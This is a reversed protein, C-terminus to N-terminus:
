QSIQIGSDDHIIWADFGMKQIADKVKEPNEPTYAFMCGGGGSGNLKGGLAGADLATKLMTDLKTTSVGIVDRLIEHHRTLLKGFDGRSFHKSQLLALAEKTIDRTELIGNLLDMQDKSLRKKWPPLENRNIDQLLIDPNSKKMDHLLTEARKKVRGILGTTDKPDGSYGLVFFGLSNSLKQIKISPFNELYILRGCASSYHDMMGGPENFELVESQHALKATEEPTLVKQQDSMQALFYIWAVVLASSSSTGANIPIDGRVACEFGHSFTFGAKQLVHVSSRFYDREKHYPFVELINFEERNRIDPLDILIKFDDRVRGQVTMRKSIALAIVPLGLYDQHEGFLCIRGPASVSLRHSTKAMNKKKLISAEGRCVM